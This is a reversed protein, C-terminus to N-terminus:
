RNMKFRIASMDKARFEGAGSDILLLVIADIRIEVSKMETMM